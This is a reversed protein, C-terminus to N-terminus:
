EGKEGALPLSYTVLKGTNINHMMLGKTCGFVLLSDKYAVLARFSDDM